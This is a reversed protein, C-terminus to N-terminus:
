YVRYNHEAAYDEDIMDMAKDDDDDDADQACACCSSANRRPVTLGTGM